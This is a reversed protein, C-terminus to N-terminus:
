IVCPSIAGGFSMEIGSVAHLRPASTSPQTNYFAYVGYLAGVRNVASESPELREPSLDMLRAIIGDRCGSLVYGYIIQHNSQHIRGECLRRVGQLADM